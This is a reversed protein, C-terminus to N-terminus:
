RRSRASSSVTTLPGGSAGRATSVPPYQRREYGCKDSFCRDGKLFLKADERRCLRCVPGTYRAM